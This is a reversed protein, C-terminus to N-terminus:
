INTKNKTDKLLLDRIIALVPILKITKGKAGKICYILKMYKLKLFNCFFM